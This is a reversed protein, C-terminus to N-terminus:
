ARPEKSLEPRITREAVPKRANLTVNLAAASLAILATAAAIYWPGGRILVGGLATGLAIGLYLASANLGITMPAHEPDYSLLRQQQPPTQAWSAAGWVAAAVVTVAAGVHAACVGVAGIMLLYAITLGLTPGRRDAVVGSALSGALAGVGYALLVVTLLEAGTRTFAAIYAYGLYAATMGLTTVTLTVIIESRVLPAFRRRVSIVGRGPADPALCRVAGAAAVSLVAVGILVTRWNAVASSVTGLPVGIATALTLGSIVLALARGRHTDPVSAAALVGATPTVVSAALGAAVRAVLLLGLSPAAAAGLNVVGLAVLAVCMLARRPRHCTWAALLPAGIAYAVAFVTVTQGAATVTVGLDDAMEPLFGAVVWADTGVAFTGLLLPWCRLLPRHDEIYIIM